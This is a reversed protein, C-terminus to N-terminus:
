LKETATAPQVTYSSASPRVSMAVALTGSVSPSTPSPLRHNFGTITAGNMANNAAATASLNLRNMQPHCRTM